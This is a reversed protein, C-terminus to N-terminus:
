NPYKIWKQTLKPFLYFIFKIKSNKGLVLQINTKFFVPLGHLAVFLLGLSASVAEASLEKRM